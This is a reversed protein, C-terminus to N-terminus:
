IGDGRGQFLYTGERNRSALPETAKRITALMRLWGCVISATTGGDRIQGTFGAGFLELATEAIEQLQDKRQARVGRM